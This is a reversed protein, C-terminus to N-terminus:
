FSFHAFDGGWFILTGKKVELPVAKDLDYSPKDGIYITNLNDPTRIMFYTTKDKNSGPIGWLCGNEVNADHLAFWM